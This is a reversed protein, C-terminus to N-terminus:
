GVKCVLAQLYRGEPFAPAVPHDPGQSRAELVVVDREAEVAAAALVREFAEAGVAQSCTCTVLIGAPACTRLAMANLKQYAALAKALDSRSPAFKPPDVIVLDFTRMPASRLYALVDAEVASFRPGAGLREAHASAAELARKSTDVAIASSAGGALANLAFGGAYSFLDLVRAGRALERVRRRNERQDLFAGTKQGRALDVTYEIGNESFTAPEDSGRAIRAAGDFGELAAVKGASPLIVRAPAFVADLAGLIEPERRKMGLTTIQVSAAGRFVDVVLGPLRDGEAYALRYADTEASPLSLRARLAQAEVLRAELFARDIPEERRTMMRVAIQSRPNYLGRGIFRRRDDVVDVADGPEPQGLVERIAGGFIWPHGLWVPKAKGKALVITASL